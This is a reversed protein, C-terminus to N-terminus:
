DSSNTHELSPISSNQFFENLEDQDWNEPTDMYVIWAQFWASPQLYCPNICQLPHGYVYQLPQLRGHGNIQQKVDREVALTM